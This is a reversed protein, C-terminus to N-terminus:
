ETEETKLIQEPDLEPRAPEPRPLWRVPSAPKELSFKLDVRNEPFRGSFGFTKPLAFCDPRRLDFVLGGHLLRRVSPQVAQQEPLVPEPRFATFWFAFWVAACTLAAALAPTFQLRTKM